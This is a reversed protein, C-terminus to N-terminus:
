SRYANSGILLSVTLIPKLSQHILLSKTPNEIISAVAGRIKQSQESFAKMLADGSYGQSILDKLIEDAFYGNKEGDTKSSIDDTTM